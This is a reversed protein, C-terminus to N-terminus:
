IFMAKQVIREVQKLITDLVYCTKLFITFYSCLKIHNENGKENFNFNTKKKERSM